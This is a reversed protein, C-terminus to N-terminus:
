VASQSNRYVLELFPRPCRAVYKLPGETDTCKIRKEMPMGTERSHFGTEKRCPVFRVTDQSGQLTLLSPTNWHESLLIENLNQKWYSAEERGVAKGSIGLAASRKLTFVELKQRISLSTNVLNHQPSPPPPPPAPNKVTGYESKWGLRSERGDKVRLSERPKWIRNKRTRLSSNAEKEDVPRGSWLGSNLKKSRSLWKGAM